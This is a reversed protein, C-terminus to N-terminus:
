KQFSIYRNWVCINFRSRVKLMLLIFTSYMQLTNSGYAEELEICNEPQTNNWILSYLFFGLATNKNYNHVIYIQSYIQLRLLENYLLRYNWWHLFQGLPNHIPECNLMNLSYDCTCMQFNIYVTLVASATVQILLYGKEQGTISCKM